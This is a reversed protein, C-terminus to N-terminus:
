AGATDDELGEDVVREFDGDGLMEEDVGFLCDALGLLNAEVAAVGEDAGAFPHAFDLRLGHEDGAGVDWDEDEAFAAGAFFDQREERVLHRAAGALHEELDVAGGHGGVQELAFEEAVLLACEGAGGLALGPLNSIQSPPM